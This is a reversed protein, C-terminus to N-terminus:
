EAISRTGLGTGIIIGGCLRVCWSAIASPHMATALQELWGAGGALESHTSHPVSAERGSAASGDGRPDADSCRTATAPAAHAGAGRQILTGMASMARGVTVPDINPSYATFPSFPASTEHAIKRM